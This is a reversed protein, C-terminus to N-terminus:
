ISSIDYDWVILTLLVKLEVGSNLSGTWDELVEPWKMYASLSGAWKGVCPKLGM